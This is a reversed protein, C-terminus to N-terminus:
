NPPLPGTLSARQSIELWNGDPDRVFGFRAVSGMTRPASAATGGREVIRAFEADCDWVQVTLYRFGAARMEGAPLRGPEEELFLRTTGCVFVGRETEPFELAKGYYGRSRELDAVRIVMAAAEVGRYGPPVLRVRNGDPDVLAVPESTGERAIVLEHYGAPSAHSPPTRSHNLKLVAGNLGHRHQMNGGGTPLAEEYPLGATERWFTLMPELNETFLGVDLCQKALHM